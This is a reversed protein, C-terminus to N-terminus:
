SFDAQSAKLGVKRATPSDSPPHHQFLSVAWGGQHSGSNARNGGLCLSHDDGEAWGEREASHCAGQELGEENDDEGGGGMAKRLSLSHLFPQMAEEMGLASM